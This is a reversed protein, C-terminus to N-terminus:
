PHFIIPVGQIFQSSVKKLQNLLNNNNELHNNLDDNSATVQEQSNDKAESTDNVLDILQIPEESSVNSETTAISGSNKNEDIKRM